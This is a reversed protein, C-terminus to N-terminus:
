KDQQETDHVRCHDPSPTGTERDQSPKYSTLTRNSNVINHHVVLLQYGFGSVWRYVTMKSVGLWHSTCRYVGHSWEYLQLAKLHAWLQEASWWPFQVWTDTIRQQVELTLVNSPQSLLRRWDQTQWYRMRRSINPQPVGLEQELQQQRVFPTRGDRTRRSGWTEGPAELQRLFVILMRKYFPVKGDIHLELEGQLRRM